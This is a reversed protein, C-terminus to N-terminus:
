YFPINFIPHANINKNGICILQIMVQRTFSCVTKDGDQFIHLQTKKWYPEFHHIINNMSDNEWDRKIKHNHKFCVFCPIEIWFLIFILQLKVLYKLYVKQFVILATKVYQPWPLYYKMIPQYKLKQNSTHLM